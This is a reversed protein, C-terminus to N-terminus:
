VAPIFYSLSVSSFLFRLYISINLAPMIIFFLELAIKYRLRGVGSTAVGWVCHIFQMM